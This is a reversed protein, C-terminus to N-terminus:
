GDSVPPYSMWTSIDQCRDALISFYSSEQLSFMLKREIWIDVAEILVKASFRSTYPPNSLGEVLSSKLCNMAM